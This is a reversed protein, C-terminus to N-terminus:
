LRDAEALRTGSISYLQQLIYDVTIRQFSVCEKQVQYEGSRNRAMAILM